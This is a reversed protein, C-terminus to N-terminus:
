VFKPAVKEMFLRMSARVEANDHNNFDFWLMLRDDRHFRRELEASIEAADGVLANDVANKIKEPDLTGEIAKWYNEMASQAQARAKERNENLFVLVTRPMHSRTWPGGAPHFSKQMAQHQPKIEI